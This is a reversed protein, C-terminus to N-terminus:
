SRLDNCENLTAESLQRPEDVRSLTPFTRWEAQTPLSAVAECLETDWQWPKEQSIIFLAAGTMIDKPLARFGTVTNVPVYLTM